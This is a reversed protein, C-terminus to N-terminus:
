TRLLQVTATRTVLRLRVSCNAGGGAPKRGNRNAAHTHACITPASVGGYKDELATTTAGSDRERQVVDWDVQKRTPVKGERPAERNTLRAKLTERWCDDCANGRTAARDIGRGACVLCKKELAFSSM